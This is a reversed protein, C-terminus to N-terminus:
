PGLYLEVPSFGVQRTKTDYDLFLAKSKRGNILVAVVLVNGYMRAATIVHTKIAGYENDSSTPSWDQQFRDFAYASLGEQHSQWDPDHVTKGYEDSLKQALNKDLSDRKGAYGRDALFHDYTYANFSALHQQWDPDHNWIGYAGALNGKEVTKLFRDVAITGLRHSNWTWPWDLPMGAALWFVGTLLGFIGVLSFIIIRRRRDRVTDFQPADLLTM